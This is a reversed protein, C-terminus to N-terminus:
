PARHLCRLQTHAIIAHLLLMSASAQVYKDILRYIANM